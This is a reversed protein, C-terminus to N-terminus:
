PTTRWGHGSGHVDSILGTTAAGPTSMRAAAPVSLSVSHCKMEPVEIALGCMPLSAPVARRRGAPSSAPRPATRASSWPARLSMVSLSPVSASQNSMPEPRTSRVLARWPRVPARRPRPPSGPRRGQRPRRRGRVSLVALMASLSHRCSQEHVRVSVPVSVPSPSHVALTSLKESRGRCRPRRRRVEVDGAAVVDVERDGGVDAVVGVGVRPQEAPSREGRGGARVRGLRVERDRDQRRGAHQGVDISM